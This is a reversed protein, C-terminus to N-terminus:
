SNASLAPLCRAPFHRLKCLTLKLRRSSSALVERFLAPAQLAHAEHPAALERVPGDLVECPLAQAQLAPVEVKAVFERVLDALM